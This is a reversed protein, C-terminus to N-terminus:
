RCGLLQVEKQDNRHDVVERAAVAGSRDHIHDDGDPREGRGVSDDLVAHQVEVAQPQARSPRHAMVHRIGARQHQHDADGGRADDEAHAIPDPRRQDHRREDDGECERERAAGPDPTQTPTLRRNM